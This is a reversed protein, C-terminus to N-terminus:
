NHHNMAYNFDHILADKVAAAAADIAQHALELSEGTPKSLVYDIGSYPPEGIGVRVRKIQDTGLM